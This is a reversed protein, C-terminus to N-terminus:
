KEFNCILEDHRELFAANSTTAFFFFIGQFNMTIPKSGLPHKM